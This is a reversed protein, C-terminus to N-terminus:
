NGWEDVGNMWSPDLVMDDLDDLDILFEDDLDDDLFLDDLEDDFDEFELSLDDISSLEDILLDDDLLWEDDLDLDGNLFSDELSPSPENHAKIRDDVIGEIWKKFRSLIM